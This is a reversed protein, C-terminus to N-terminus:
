SRIQCAAMWTGIYRRSHLYSTAMDTPCTITKDAIAVGGWKGGQCMALKSKLLDLIDLLIGNNVGQAFGSLELLVGWPTKSTNRM